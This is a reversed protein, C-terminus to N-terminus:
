KQSLNYVNQASYLSKFTNFHLISQIMRADNALKGGVTDTSCSVDPSEQAEYVIRLSTGFSTTKLCHVYPLHALPQAVVIDHFFTTTLAPSLRAEGYYNQCVTYSVNGDLAVNITYACTNISGSNLISALDGSLKSTQFPAAVVHSYTFCLVALYILALARLFGAVSYKTNM